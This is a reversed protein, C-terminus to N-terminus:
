RLGTGKKGVELHDGGEFQKFDPELCATKVALRYLDDDVKEESKGFLINEKLTEMM